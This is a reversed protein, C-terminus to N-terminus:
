FPNFTIKGAGAGKSQSGISLPQESPIGGHSGSVSVTSIQVNELELKLGGSVADLEGIALEIAEDNLARM